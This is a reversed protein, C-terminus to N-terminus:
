YFYSAVQDDQRRPGEDTTLSLSVISECILECSRSYSIPCLKIYQEEVLNVSIAKEVPEDIPYNQPILWVSFAVTFNLHSMPTPSASVYVANCVWDWDDDKMQDRPWVYKEGLYNFEVIGHRELACLRWKDSDIGYWEDEMCGKGGKMAVVTQNWEMTLGKLHNRVTWWIASRWM